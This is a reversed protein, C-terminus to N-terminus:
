IEKEFIIEYCGDQKIHESKILKYKVIIIDKFITFPLSFSLGFSGVDINTFDFESLDVNRAGFLYFYYDFIRTYLYLKKIKIQEIVKNNEYYPFSISIRIQYQKEDIFISFKPKFAIQDKVYSPTNDRPINKFTEGIEDQLLIKCEERGIINKLKNNKYQFCHPSIFNNILEEIIIKFPITEFKNYNFLIDEITKIDQINEIINKCYLICISSELIIRTIKTEQLINNNKIIYFSVQFEKKDLQTENFIANLLNNIQNDNFNSFFFLSITYKKNNEPQIPQKLQKSQKTTTNPRKHVEKEWKKNYIYIQSEM